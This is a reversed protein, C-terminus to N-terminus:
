KCVISLTDTQCCMGRCINSIVACFLNQTHTRMKVPRTKNDTPSDDCVGSLYNM